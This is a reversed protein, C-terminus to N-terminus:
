RIAIAFEQGITDNYHFNVPPLKSGSAGTHTSTTSYSSAANTWNLRTIQYL